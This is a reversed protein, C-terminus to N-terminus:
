CHGTDLLIHCHGIDLLVHCNGTHEVFYVASLPWHGVFCSLQWHEVFYVASLPWHGVFHPYLYDVVAVFRSLRARLNQTLRRGQSVPVGKTTINEHFQLLAM